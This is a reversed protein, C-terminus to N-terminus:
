RSRQSALTNLFDSVTVIRIPGFAGITLLHKDGTVIYDSQAAAACEVIRNDSPDAKVADVSEAPAVKRAVENMEAEADSLRDTDWQFKDRLVRLVEDIIPQSVSLDIEGTDAMDILRRPKGRYNFASVWINSDATVGIM